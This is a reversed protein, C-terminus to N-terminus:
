CSLIDMMHLIDEMKHCAVYSEHTFTTHRDIAAYIDQRMTNITEANNLDSLKIRYSVGQHQKYFKHINRTLQIKKIISM